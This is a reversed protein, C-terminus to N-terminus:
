LDRGGGGPIEGSRRARRAARRLARRAPLGAFRGCPLGAADVVVTVPVGTVGRAELEGPEEEARIQRVALGLGEVRELADACTACDDKTFIVVGPGVVLGTVDVEPGRHAATRRAWGAAGLAGAVTAAVV